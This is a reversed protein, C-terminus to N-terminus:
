RRARTITLVAPHLVTVVVNSSRGGAGLGEKKDKREVFGLSTLTKQPAAKSGLPYKMPTCPPCLADSNTARRWCALIRRTMISFRKKGSLFDKLNNVFVNCAAPISTSSKGSLSCPTALLLASVLILSGRATSIKSAAGIHCPKSTVTNAPLDSKSSASNTFLFPTLFITISDPRLVM